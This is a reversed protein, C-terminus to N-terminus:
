RVEQSAVFRWLLWLAIASPLTAVTGVAAVQGWYTGHPTVLGPVAVPLTRNEATTLVSAFFFENWSLLFVVFGTLVVGALALPIANELLLRPISAGDMQAAEDMERPIRDFFGRMLLVVLSVNAAAHVLVIGWVSKVLGLRSLALFLPLAVAVPPVMRTTLVFFFLQDLRRSSRSVAFAAPVGIAMAVAASLIGVVLTNALDSDFGKELFATRYNDSTIPFLLRPPLRFIESRSKLSLSIMWLWPVVFVVAIAVVVVNDVIGRRGGKM